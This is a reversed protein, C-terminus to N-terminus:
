NDGKNIRGAITRLTTLPDNTSGENTGSGRMIEETGFNNEYM